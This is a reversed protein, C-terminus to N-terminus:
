EQYLDVRYNGSEMGTLEAEKLEDIWRQNLEQQAQNYREGREIVHCVGFYGMLPLCVALACVLVFDFHKKNM